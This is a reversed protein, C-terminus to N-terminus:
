TVGDPALGGAFADRVAAEVDDKTLMGEPLGALVRAVIDDAAGAAGVRAAAEIATLETADIDVRSRIDDLESQTVDLRSLCLDLKPGIALLTKTADNNGVGGAYDWAAPDGGRALYEARTPAWNWRAARAILWLQRLMLDQDTNMDPAGIQWPATSDAIAAAVISMHAHTTHMDTTGSYPGWEWAKRSSTAYSSFIRGGFIVYKIRPDRSQRLAETIVHNDLGLEPAHPWDCACVVAIPGLADCYHPYHDSTSNHADDAITGWANVDTAPPVARPAVAKLQPFFAVDICDVTRWPQGKEWM